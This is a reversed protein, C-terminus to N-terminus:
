PDIDIGGDGPHGGRVACSAAMQGLNSLGRSVTVGGGTTSADSATVTSSPSARFDMRALPLLALFRAIELKVVRPIELRIVVPHQVKSSLGFALHQQAGGMLNQKFTALYVLGGAVVQMEKQNSSGSMVTLLALQAYKLVKELKPYACGSVGDVIAGQVEAKVARQTAKKPHRSIGWQEYEQRLALIGPTPTGQLTKALAKDVKEMADFNDLYM